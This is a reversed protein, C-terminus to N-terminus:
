LTLQPQAIAIPNLWWSLLIKKEKLEELTTLTVIM